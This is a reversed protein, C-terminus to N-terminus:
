SKAYTNAKLALFHNGVLQKVRKPNEWFPRLVETLKERMIEISPYIKNALNDKYIDGLEEVPNLEPSYPPLSILKLNKPMEKEDKMNHFGAGDWIVIHLADKDTESIQKLFLLSNEKCVTPMFAVEIKNEGDLELAEYAYDWDYKTQYPATVKVGRKGWCRRIVPLLGFRHEDAAWLRIKSSGRTMELLRKMLTKKFDEVKAADKKVHTKRPMKLVGDVKKLWYYVATMKLKCGQKAMWAQAEVARIFEGKTVKERLKEEVGEKMKKKPGGKWKRRLLGEIGGEVYLGMYNFVSKRSIGAVDAIEEASKEHEMVLRIVQLRKVAWGEKREKEAKELANIDGGIM